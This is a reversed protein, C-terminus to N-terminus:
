IEHEVCLEQRLAHMESELQAVNRHGHAVEFLRRADVKPAAHAVANRRQDCHSLKPGLLESEHPMRQELLSHMFSPLAEAPLGIGPVQQAETQTWVRLAPM